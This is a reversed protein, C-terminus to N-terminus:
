LQPLSVAEREGGADREAEVGAHALGPILVAAAEFQDLLQEGLVVRVDDLHAVGAALHAAPEALLDRADIVQLAELEADAAEGAADDALHAHDRLLDGGAIDIRRQFLAREVRHFPDRGGVVLLEAEHLHGLIVIEWAPPFAARGSVEDDVHRLPVLQGLM